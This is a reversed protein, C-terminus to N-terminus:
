DDFVEEYTRTEPWRFMELDLDTGAAVRGM